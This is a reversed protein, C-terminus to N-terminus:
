SISYYFIILDINTIEVTISVNDYIRPAQIYRATIRSLSSPLKSDLQNHIKSYLPHNHEHNIEFLGYILELEESIIWKIADSKNGNTNRLLSFVFPKIIGLYEGISQILISRRNYM